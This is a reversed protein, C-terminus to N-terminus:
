VSGESLRSECQLVHSTTRDTLNDIINLINNTDKKM